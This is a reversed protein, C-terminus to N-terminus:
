HVEKLRRMMIEKVREATIGQYYEQSLSHETPEVEFTPREGPERTHAYMKLNLTDEYEDIQNSLWSFMPELEVREPDDFVRVLKVFNAESLSGWVGWRFTEATGIIPLQIIGRVFFDEGDVICLDEDLYSKPLRDVSLPGEETVEADERSWYAPASYSLDLCPGTHWEECTHCKWRLGALDDLTVDTRSNRIRAREYCASCLVQITVLRQSEDDWGDHAERIVECDNCWADPFPEDDNPDSRNFGLGAANGDVLHSCVFAPQTEGHTDCYITDSM